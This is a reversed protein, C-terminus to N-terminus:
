KISRATLNETIGMDVFSKYVPNEPIYFASIIAAHLIYVKLPWTKPKQFRDSILYYLSEMDELLRFNLRASYLM